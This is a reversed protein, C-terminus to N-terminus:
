EKKEVLHELSDTPPNKWKNIKNGRYERGIVLNGKSKEKKEAEKVV